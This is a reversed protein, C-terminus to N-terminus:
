LPLHVIVKLGGKKSDELIIEGGHANIIDQAISLGLGIGGTKTNRSKELRFFPRFVDERSAAAIGPGNDEITIELIDKEKRSFAVWTKKAYKCANGVINGLAREMAVPRIYIMLDNDFSYEIDHSERKFKVIIRELISKIGVIETNEDGEGRAFALYGELMREMEHIDQLFCDVDPLDKMMALQLKMRTIPTKLDHSVGALMATRQEIQKKIRNRMELFAKAAQRVESAGEIKFYNIDRGKGIQEAAIALRRIPRLQNKMFIIAVAMLFVSTGILWLLFIHTTPSTIRKQSCRYTIVRNNELLINVEFEGTDPFTIINFPTNMRFNLKDRLKDEIRKWVFSIPRNKSKDVASYKDFSISIALNDRASNIINQVAENNSSLHNIQENINYIEGSLAFALKDVLNDWPRELFIYGVILQMLLVPVVIIALSRGYLTKPFIFNKFDKLYRSM